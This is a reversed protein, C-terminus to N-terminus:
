CQVRVQQSERYSLGTGTMRWKYAAESQTGAAQFSRYFIGVKKGFNKRQGVPDFLGVLTSFDGQM